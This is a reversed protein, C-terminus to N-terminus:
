GDHSEKEEGLYVEVRERARSVHVREVAPEGWPILQRDNEVIQGEELLDYITEAPGFADPRPGAYYVVLRCRVDGSLPSRLGNARCQIMLQVRAQQEYRRLMDSKGLFPKGTGGTRYIPRHNKKSPCHGHITFRM